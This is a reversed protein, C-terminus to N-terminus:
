PTVEFCLRGILQGSTTMVDVSWRGAPAPPFETKRSYTRFGRRRGGRVPSLKVIEVVRGERRWVHEIPQRLDAPAYVATYAVIGRELDAVRLPGEIPDLPETDAVGRALTAAALALPAPPVLSRAAAALGVAGIAALATVQLATTWSAEWARRLAPTLALVAAWASTLLAAIPSVGVLPLAVNLAAFSSAMFFLYGVWPRPHVLAAYWPDFTALLAMAVLLGLFLANLSTLTSSAYYAPLVFLLLGHHLTQMTYDAATVVLRHGGAELPQRVQTVVGFLLWLLLLYGVIWAVHPLDRRFVFLTVLGGALSAISVGWRGLWGLRGKM